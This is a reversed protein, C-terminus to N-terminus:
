WTNLRHLRQEMLKCEPKSKMFLEATEGQPPGSPAYLQALSSECDKFHLCSQWGSNAYNRMLLGPISKRILTFPNLSVDARTRGQGGVVHHFIWWKEQFHCPSSYLKQFWVCTLLFLATFKAKKIWYKPYSSDQPESRPNQTTRLTYILFDNTQVFMLLFDSLTSKLRCKRESCRSPVLRWLGVKKREQICIPLDVILDIM